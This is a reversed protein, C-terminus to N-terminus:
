GGGLSWALMGLIVAIVALLIGLAIKVGTSTRYRIHPTAAYPNEQM